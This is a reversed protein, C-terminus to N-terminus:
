VGKSIKITMFYVLRCCFGLDLLREGSGTIVADVLIVTDAEPIMRLGNM